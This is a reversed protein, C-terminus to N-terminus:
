IDKANETDLNGTPKDAPLVEPNNVLTRAIAV